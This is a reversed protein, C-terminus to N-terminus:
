ELRYDKADDQYSGTSDAKTEVRMVVTPPDMMGALQEDM